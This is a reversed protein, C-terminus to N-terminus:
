AYYIPLILHQLLITFIYSIADTCNLKQSTSRSISIPLTCYVAISFDTAGSCLTPKYYFIEALKDLFIVEQRPYYLVGIEIM